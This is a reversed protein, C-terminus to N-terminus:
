RHSTYIGRFCVIRVFRAFGCDILPVADRLQTLGALRRDQYQGQGFASFEAFRVGRVIHSISQLYPERADFKDRLVRVSGTHQLKRSNNAVVSLQGFRWKQQRFDPGPLRNFYSDQGFIRAYVLPCVGHLKVHGNWTSHCIRRLTWLGALFAFVDFTFDKEFIM